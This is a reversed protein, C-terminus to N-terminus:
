SLEQVKDLLTRTQDARQNLAKMEEKGAGTFAAQNLLGSEAIQLADVLTKKEQETLTLNVAIEGM